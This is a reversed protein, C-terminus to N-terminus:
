VTQHFFCGSSLKIDAEKPKVIFKVSLNVRRKALHVTGSLRSSILQKNTERALSTYKIERDCVCNLNLGTYTVESSDIM